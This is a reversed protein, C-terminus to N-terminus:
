SPFSFLFLCSSDQLVRMGVPVASVLCTAADLRGCINLFLTLNFGLYSLRRFLTEVNSLKIEADSYYYYHYPLKRM